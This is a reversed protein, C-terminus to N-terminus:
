SDNYDTVTITSLNGRTLDPVGNRFWMITIPRTGSVLNCVLTVDFGDVVYTPTGITVTMDGPMVTPPQPILPGEDIDPPDALM